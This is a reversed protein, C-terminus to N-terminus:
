TRVDELSAHPSLSLPKREPESGSDGDLKFEVLKEDDERGGDGNETERDDDNEDESESDEM